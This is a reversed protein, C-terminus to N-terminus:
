GSQRDGDTPQAFTVGMQQLFGLKDNLCLFDTRRRSQVREIRDRWRVEVDPKLRAWWL